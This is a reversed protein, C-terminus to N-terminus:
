PGLSPGNEILNGGNDYKEVGKLGGDKGYFKIYGGEDVSTFDWEREVAGNPYYLKGVGQKMTRSDIMYWRANSLDQDLRLLGSSYYERNRVVRGSKYQAEKKLQGNPYFEKYAGHRRGAEYFEEGQIKAVEDFFEVKGDPIKGTADYIKGKSEKYTAVVEGGKLFLSELYGGGRPDLRTKRVVKQGAAPGPDPDGKQNETDIKGKENPQDAAGAQPGSSKKTMDDIPRIYKRSLAALLFFFGIIVYFFILGSPKKIIKIM